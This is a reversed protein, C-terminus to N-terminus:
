PWASDFEEHLVEAGAEAISQAQPATALLIASISSSGGLTNGIHAARPTRALSAPFSCFDGLFLLMPVKGSHEWLRIIRDFHDQSLQPFEDVIVFDYDDIVALADHTMALSVPSDGSARMHLLIHVITLRRWMQASRESQKFVM